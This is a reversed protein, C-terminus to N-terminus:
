DFPCSAGAHDSQVCQQAFVQSVEAKEQAGSLLGGDEGDLDFADVDAEDVMGVGGDWDDMEVDDAELPSSQRPSSQRPSSPPQERGKGKIPTSKLPSSPPGRGPSKIEMRSRKAPSATDFGNQLHSFGRLTRAPTANGRKGLPTAAAANGPLMPGKRPTAKGPTSIGFRPPPLRAQSQPTGGAVPRPRSASQM